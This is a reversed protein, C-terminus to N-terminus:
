HEPLGHEVYASLKRLSQKSGTENDELSIGKPIDEFLVTVETGRDADALTWIIKMEGALDPQDSEFETVWVIKENPVLEAFTGEFTDTNESTKGRSDDLYTLSMRFKGGEHPDFTEIHGTMTDPALWSALAEPNLFARYVAERPANIIQSAQTSRGKSM